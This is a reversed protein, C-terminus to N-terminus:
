FRLLIHEGKKTHIKLAQLMHTVFKVVSIQVKYKRIWTSYSLTEWDTTQSGLKPRWVTRIPEPLFSKRPLKLAYLTIKM